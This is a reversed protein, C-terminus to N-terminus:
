RLIYLYTVKLFSFPLVVTDSSESDFLSANMMHFYNEMFFPYNRLSLKFASERVIKTTKSPNIGPNLIDLAKDLLICVQENSLLGQAYKLSDQIIVKDYDKKKL